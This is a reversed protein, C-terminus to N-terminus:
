NSKNPHSDSESHDSYTLGFDNKPEKRTEILSKKEPTLREPTLSTKPNPLTSSDDIVPIILAIQQLTSESINISFKNTQPAM